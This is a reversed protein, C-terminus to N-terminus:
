WNGCSWSFFYHSLVSRCISFRLGLILILHRQHLLGVGPLNSSSTAFLVWSIGSSPTNKSIVLPLHNHGVWFVIPITGVIHYFCFCHEQPIYQHIVFPKLSTSMPDSETRMMSIVVILSSIMNHLRNILGALKLSLTANLKLVVVSFSITQVLNHRWESVRSWNALKWKNRMKFLFWSKSTCFHNKPACLNM